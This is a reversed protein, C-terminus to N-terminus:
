MCGVWCGSGLLLCQFFPQCTNCITIIIQLMADFYGIRLFSDTTPGFFTKPIKSLIKFINKIKELGVSSPNFVSSVMKSKGRVPFLPIMEPFAWFPFPNVPFPSIKFRIWVDEDDSERFSSALKSLNRFLKIKALVKFCKCFEAHYICIRFSQGKIDLLM